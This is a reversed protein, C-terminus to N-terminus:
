TGDDDEEDEEVYPREELPKGCYCCFRMDNDSPMDTSLVFAHKCSTEWTGDYDETWLCTESM